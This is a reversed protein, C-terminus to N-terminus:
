SLNTWRGPSSGLFKLNHIWLVKKLINKTLYENRLLKKDKGFYELYTVEFHKIFVLKRFFGIFFYNKCLNKFVCRAKVITFFSVWFNGTFINYNKTMNKNTNHDGKDNNKFPKAYFKWLNHWNKFYCKCCTLTLKFIPMIQAFKM